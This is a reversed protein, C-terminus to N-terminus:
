ADFFARFASRKMFNESWGIRSYTEIEAKDVCYNISELHRKLRMYDLGIARKKGESNRIYRFCAFGPVLRRFGENQYSSICKKIGIRGMQYCQFSHWDFDIFTEWPFNQHLDARGFSSLGLQFSSDTEEQFKFCGDVLREAEKTHNKLGLEANVIWGKTLDNTCRHMAELYKGISHHWPYGCVYTEIDERFLAQTYTEITKASNIYFSRKAEYWPGMIAVWSINRRALYEALWVPDKTRGKGLKRLYLGTGYPIPLLLSNDPKDILSSM